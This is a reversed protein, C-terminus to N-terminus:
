ARLEFLRAWTRQFSPEDLGATPEDMVLISPRHVLARAIDLRRRMGGSYRAVPEDAREGLEMLELRESTRAQATARPVRYLAASLLLNERGTLKADLASSQFVVGMRARLRRDGAAVKAGALRLDGASPAALGCLVRFTTTKGAGNPGLFGFIEAEAVAFSVGTLVRRERYRHELDRAEILPVGAPFTSPRLDFTLPPRLLRSDDSVGDSMENVPSAM